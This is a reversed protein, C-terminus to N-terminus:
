VTRGAEELRKELQAVRRAAREHDREAKRLEREAQRLASRRRQSSAKSSRSADRAERERAPEPKPKRKPRRKPTALTMGALADFATPEVEESLVGRRLLAATAPNRRLRGSCCPSASSSRMPRDGPAARVLADVRGHSTANRPAYSSRTARRTPPQWGSATRSSSRSSIPSSARLVIRSSSPSRRSASSRSRQPRRPEVRTACAGARAAQARCRVGRARGRLAARPRGLGDSAVSPSSASWRRRRRRHRVRGARGQRAPLPRARGVRPLGARHRLRGPRGDGRDDADVHSRDPRPVHAERGAVRPQDRLRFAAHRLPRRPRAVGQAAPAPPEIEPAAAKVAERAIKGLDMALLTANGFGNLLAIAGVKEKPDFCANTIFGYHGGSHMIWVADDRRRAYWGIAWARTWEPDVLYRPKHM